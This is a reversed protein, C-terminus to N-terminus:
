LSADLLADEGDMEEYFSDLDALQIDFEILEDQTLVASHKPITRMIVVLLIALSPVLIKLWPRTNKQPLASIFSRM